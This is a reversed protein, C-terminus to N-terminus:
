SHHVYIFGGIMELSVFLGNSPALLLNFRAFKQIQYNEDLARALFKFFAKTRSFFQISATDTLIYSAAATSQLFYPEAIDITKDVAEAERSIPPKRWEAETLLCSQCTVIHIDVEEPLFQFLFLGQEVASSDSM